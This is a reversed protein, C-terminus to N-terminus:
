GAEACHVANPGSSNFFKASSSEVAKACSPDVVKTIDRSQHICRDPHRSRHDVVLAETFPGLRSGVLLTLGYGPSKSCKAASIS